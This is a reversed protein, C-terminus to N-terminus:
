CRNSASVHHYGVRTQVAAPLMQEGVNCDTAVLGGLLFRNGTNSRRSLKPGVGRSEPSGTFPQITTRLM